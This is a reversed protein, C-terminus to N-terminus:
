LSENWHAVIDWKRLGGQLIEAHHEKRGEGYPDAKRCDDHPVHAVTHKFDHLHVVDPGRLGLSELPFDDNDAMRQLVGYKGDDGTAPKLVPYKNPPAM